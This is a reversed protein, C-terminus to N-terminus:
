GASVAPRAPLCKRADAHAIAKGVSRARSGHVRHMEHLEAVPRHEDARAIGIQDARALRRYEDLAKQRPIKQRDADPAKAAARDARSGAQRRALNQRAIGNRNLSAVLRRHRRRPNGAIGNQGALLRHRGVIRQGPRAVRRGFRHLQRRGHQIGARGGVVPQGIAAQGLMDRGCPARHRQVGGLIRECPRQKPQALPDPPRAPAPEVFVLIRHRRHVNGGELVEQVAPSLM